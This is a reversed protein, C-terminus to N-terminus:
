EPLKRCSQVLGVLPIDWSFCARRLCITLVLLLVGNTFEVCLLFMTMYSTHCVFLLIQFFFSFVFIFFCEGNGAETLLHDNISLPFSARREEGYQLRAIRYQDVGHHTGPLYGALSATRHELFLSVRHSRPAANLVIFMVDNRDVSRARKKKTVGERLESRAKNTVRRSNAPAVLEDHVKFLQPDSKHVHKPVEAHVLGDLGYVESLTAGLLTVILLLRGDM